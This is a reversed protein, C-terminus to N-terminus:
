PFEPFRRSSPRSSGHQRHGRIELRKFIREAPFRIRPPGRPALPRRPLRRPVSRFGGLCAASAASTAASFISAGVSASCIAAASASPAFRFNCFGTIQGLIRRSRRFLIALLLRGPPCHALRILDADVLQRAFELDLCLRDDVIQRFGANRFFLRMRTRNIDDAASIHPLVKASKGFASAAASSFAAESFAAFSAAALAARMFGAATHAEGAAKAREQSEREERGPPQRAGSEPRAVEPLELRLSVVAGAGTEAFGRVNRGSDGFWCRRSRRGYHGFGGRTRRNSWGAGGCPRCSSLAGAAIFGSAAGRQM